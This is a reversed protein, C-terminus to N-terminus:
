AARKGTLVPRYLVADHRRVDVFGSEKMLGM